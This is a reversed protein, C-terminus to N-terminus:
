VLTDGVRAPGLPLPSPQVALAAEVNAEVLVGILPSAPDNTRLHIERKLPGVPADPKLTVTVRYGVQRGRQRYLERLEVDFPLGRALVETVHWDLPGAYEVDVPQSPTQGSAVAGFNVQGPNFVVDARSHASVKLEATSVYTPGVTVYVTVSKAGKFRRGDMTVDVTGSERPQLVRASPAASVCGCSARVQTFELPVAYINTVRFRHLLQAGLPVP